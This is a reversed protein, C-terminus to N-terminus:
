DNKLKSISRKGFMQKAQLTGAMVLAGAAGVTDGTEKLALGKAFYLGSGDPELKIANNIATMARPWDKREGYIYAIYGWAWGKISPDPVLNIVKQFEVLAEDKRENVYFAFALYWHHLWNNPNLETKKLYKDVVLSKFTPDISPISAIKNFGEQIFGTYSYAMAMGFQVNADQSLTKSLIYQKKLNAWSEDSMASYLTSISLLVMIFIKVDFEM